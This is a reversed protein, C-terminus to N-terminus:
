VPTPTGTSSPLAAPLRQEALVFLPPQSVQALQPEAAAFDASHGELECSSRLSHRGFRSGFVSPSLGAAGALSSSPAQRLPSHSGPPETQAQILCPYRAYRARRGAVPVIAFSLSTALSVHTAQPVALNFAVGPFALENQSFGTGLRPGLLAPSCDGLASLRLGPASSAAWPYQAVVPEPTAQQGSCAAFSFERIRVGVHPGSSPDDSGSATPLANLSAWVLRPLRSTSLPRRPVEGSTPLSIAARVSAALGRLLGSLDLRYPLGTCSRLRGPPVSGARVPCPYCASRLM